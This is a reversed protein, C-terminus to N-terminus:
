TGQVSGDGAAVASRAASGPHEYNNIDNPPIKKNSPGTRFRRVLKALLLLPDFNAVGATNNTPISSTTVEEALNEVFEKFGMFHETKPKFVSGLALKELHPGAASRVAKFDDSHQEGNVTYIPEGNKNKSVQIKCNEGPLNPHCLIGTGPKEENFGMSYMFQTGPYGDPKVGRPKGSPSEPPTPERFEQLKRMDLDGLKKDVYKDQKNEVGVIFEPPIAEKFRLEPTEHPFFDTGHKTVFQKHAERSRLRTKIESPNGGFDTDVNARVWDMPLHAVVVRRDEKPVTVAKKGAQRFFREGSMAAYGHAVNKGHSGFAVSIMGTKPDKNSIGNKRIYPINDKHTGHYVVIHDTNDAWFKM